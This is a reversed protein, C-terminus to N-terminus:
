SPLSFIERSFLRFSVNPRYLRMGYGTAVAIFKMLELAVEDKSRPAGAAAAGNASTPAENPSAPEAM